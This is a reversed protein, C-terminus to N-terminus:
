YMIEKNIAWFKALDSSEYQRLDFEFLSFFMKGQRSEFRLALDAEGGERPPLSPAGSWEAMWQSSSIPENEPEYDVGIPSKDVSSVIERPYLEQTLSLQPKGNFTSTGM